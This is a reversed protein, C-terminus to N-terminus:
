IKEILYGNFVVSPKEQRGLHYYITAYDVGVLKAVDSLKQRYATVGNKTIQYM